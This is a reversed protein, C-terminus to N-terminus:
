RHLVKPLRGRRGSHNEARRFWICDRIGACLFYSGGLDSSNFLQLNTMPLNPASAMMRGIRKGASVEYAALNELKEAAQGHPPPIPDFNIQLSPQRSLRLSARDAEIPEDFGEVVSVHQALSM